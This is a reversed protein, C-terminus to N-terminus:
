MVEGTPAAKKKKGRRKPPPAEISSELTVKDGVQSERRSAVGGLELSQDPCSLNLAGLAEPSPSSSSSSPCVKLMM